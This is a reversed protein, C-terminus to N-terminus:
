DIKNKKHRSWSKIKKERFIASTADSHVEYYILVNLNYRSTFGPCVNHKHEYLRRALNNTIGTYLVNRNFNTLIYVYYDDSM